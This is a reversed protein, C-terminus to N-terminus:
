RPNNLGASLPTLIKWFTQLYNGRVKEPIHYQRVFYCIYANRHSTGGNHEPILLDYLPTTFPIRLQVEAFNEFM